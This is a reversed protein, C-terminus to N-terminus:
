VGCYQPKGQQVGGWDPSDARGPSQVQRCLGQTLSQLLSNLAAQVELNPYKLTLELRGIIQRHSATTLYGAQFMLAEVPINDVDFTSLLSESAVVRSLDPTFQQRQQLLKILFTPTGTEFWHPAFKRTDFLLLLGFPNYVPTGLWNYGNYWQRIRERDLGPLEPAFVTDVDADTYGCIDSYREDLTIDKLNNLGSFLSVKSFKSVGTMFVFKLHADSGKLVSYLNKLGERMEIAVASNDINDLIPKDYEDILVVARQGTSQHAQAILDALNGPLNTASLGEPLQLGLMQRNVRLLEGMSQDLEARNRLVGEGFGIRIM